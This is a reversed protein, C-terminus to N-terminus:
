DMHFTPVLPWELPKNGPGVEMLPAMWDWWRRMLPHDPLTDRRHDDTLTLV